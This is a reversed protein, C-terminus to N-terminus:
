NLDYLLTLTRLCLCPKIVGWLAIGWSWVPKEPPLYLPIPRHTNHRVRKWLMILYSKTKWEFYTQPDTQGM